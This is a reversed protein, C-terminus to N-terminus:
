AIVDKGSKGSKVANYLPGRAKMLEDWSGSEQISGQDLFYIKDFDQLRSLRHTIVFILCDRKRANLMRHIRTESEIDLASTAEDLILVPTRLAMIQAILLRQRQGGSLLTGREGVVTDYGQPLSTIFDHADAFKAAEIISQEDIATNGGRIVERVSTNLISVDQTVLGILRRLSKLSIEDINYDKDGIKLTIIGKDHQYMGLLLSVITSKGSGSPGVLATIKGKRAVLSVDRLARKYKEYNFKVNLLKLSDIEQVPLDIGTEREQGSNDASYFRKTAFVHPESAIVENFAASAAVTPSLMRHVVLIFTLLQAPEVLDIRQNGFLMIAILSLAGLYVLLPDWTKLLVSYARLWLTRSSVKRAKGSFMDIIGTLKILRINLIIEHLLNHLVFTQDLSRSEVRHLAKAYFLRAPVLIFTMLIFIATLLPSIHLMILFLVTLTLVHGALMVLSSVAKVVNGCGNVLVERFTGSELKDLYSFQSHFYNALVHDRIDVIVGPTILFLYSKALGLVTERLILGGIVILLSQTNLGSQNSIGLFESIREFFPPLSSSGLINTVVSFLAIVVIGEILSVVVLIFCASYVKWRNGASMLHVAAILKWLRQIPRSLHIAINPSWGPAPM